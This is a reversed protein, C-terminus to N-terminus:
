NKLKMFSVDIRQLRVFSCITAIVDARIECIEHNYPTLILHKIQKCKSTFSKLTRINSPDPISGAGSGASGSLVNNQLLYGVAVKLIELNELGRVQYKDLIDDHYPIVELSKINKLAGSLSDDFVDIEIGRVSVLSLEQLQPNMKIFEIFDVRYFRKVSEVRFSILKPLTVHSWKPREFSLYKLTLCSLRPLALFFESSLSDHSNFDDYKFRNKSIILKKVFCCKQAIVRFLWHSSRIRTHFFVLNLAIMRDGFTNFIPWYPKPEEKTDDTYIKIKYHDDDTQGNYKLTFAERAYTKFTKCVQTAKLLDPDNLHKFIESLIEGPLDLLNIENTDM